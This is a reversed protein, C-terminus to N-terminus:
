GLVLRGLRALCCSGVLGVNMWPYAAIRLNAKLELPPRLRLPTSDLAVAALPVSRSGALLWPPTALAALAQQLGLAGM